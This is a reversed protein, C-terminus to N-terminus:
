ENMELFWSAAGTSRLILTDTDAGLVEGSFLEVARRVRRPLKVEYAGGQGAHVLLHRDNGSVTADGNAYYCHVGARRFIAQWVSFEVIPMGAFVATSGDSLKKLALAPTQDAIYTAWVEAASDVCHVKPNETLAAGRCTSKMTGAGRLEAALPLREHKAALQLGTLESMAADSFGNETVLGPAFSWVATVGPARVKAKIAAREAASPSFLNLFIVLKYPRDGALYDNLSLLDFTSGSANLAHLTKDLITEVIPRQKRDDPYGHRTMEAPSLVVAAERPFDVGDRYLSRWVRQGDHWASYIVPDNFWSNFGRRADFELFQVACGNLWANAIERRMVAISEEPTAASLYPERRPTLHTREDAEIISLKGYRKFISTIMRPQGDGGARRSEADYSYPSSLFDIAPYSLVKDLMLTQGEAPYGMCFFYGYYAGVLLKPAVRKIESAFELLTDAVVNEHCEYYDLVKRDASAPDRFFRNQGYREAATPVAACELTAAPDHWAQVLAADTHYKARLFKRFANTMARGTDPMSGGMGYYHWESYVGHSARVAVVRKFWPQKQMYEAAARAFARMEARFPESAMSPSQFRGNQGGWGDAPGTAYGIAEDPHEALWKGTMDFRLAVFLAADPNLALIRRIDRDMASFDYKGPALFFRGSVTQYEMFRIGSHAAKVVDDAVQPIWPNSGVLYIMPVIPEGNLAIGAMGNKWVIAAQWEPQGDLFGIDAARDLLKEYHTREAPTMMFDMANSVSKWPEITVDGLDMAPKWSRDDFNSERWAAPVKAAALTTQPSSFLPIVKGSALTIEGRMIVGGMAEGNRIEFSLTNRGPRWETLPEFRRFWIPCDPQPYPINKLEKGNLAANGNDDFAALIWASKVPEDLTINMRYYASTANEVRPAQFWIWRADSVPQEFPNIGATLAADPAQWAAEAGGATLSFVLWLGGSLFGAIWHKLM